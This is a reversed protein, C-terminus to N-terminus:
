FVKCKTIRVPLGKEPYFLFRYRANEEPYVMNWKVNKLLHHFFTLANIKALEYGPCHRLGSGFPFFIYPEMTRTGNKPIFRSPDFKTPNPFRDPNWMSQGAAATLRYGKPITFGKYEIDVMAVRNIDASSPTLRLTEQMVAWTYKM